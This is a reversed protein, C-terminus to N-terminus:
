TEVLRLGGRKQGTRARSAGARRKGKGWAPEFLEKAAAVTFARDFWRQLELEDRSALVRRRLTASISVERHELVGLVSEAQTKARGEAWGRMFGETWDDLYSEVLWTPALDEPNEKVRRAPKRKAAM